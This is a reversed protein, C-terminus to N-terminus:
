LKMLGLERPDAVAVLFLEHLDAVALPSALRLQGDVAPFAFDALLM